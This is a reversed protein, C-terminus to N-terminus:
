TNNSYGPILGGTKAGALINNKLFLKNTGSAIDIFSGTTKKNVFTNNM